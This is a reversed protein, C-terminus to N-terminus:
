PLRGSATDLEIRAIALALEGDAKEALAENTARRVALLEAIGVKGLEYARASRANVENSLVAARVLHELAGKAGSYRAYAAEVEGVARNRTASVQATASTALAERQGIAARNSNFLPLPLSVGALAFNTVEHYEYSGVVSLASWREAKAVEVEAATSNQTALSRRVDSRQEVGARLVGLVPPEDSPVLDGVVTVETNPEAGIWVALTKASASANSTATSLRADERALELELVGVEGEGLDGAVVRRRAITVLREALERRGRALDVDVRAKVAHAHLVLAARVIQRRAEDADAAAQRADAAAADRRAGVRGAIDLPIALGGRIETTTPTGFRAGGLVSISPNDYSLIPLGRTAALAASANGSAIRAELSSARAIRAVTTRDLRVPDAWAPRSLTTLCAVLLGLGLLSPWRSTRVSRRGRVNAARTMM